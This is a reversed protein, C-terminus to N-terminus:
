FFRSSTADFDKANAYGGYASQQGQQQGYSAYQPYGGAGVGKNLGIAGQQQQQQSGPQVGQQQPPVGQQGQQQQQQQGGVGAGQQQQPAGYRQQTAQPQQAGGYGGYAYQAQLASFNPPVQQPFQSFGYYGAYPNYAAAAYPNMGYFNAAAAQQAPLQQQQQQQPAQATQSAGQAGQSTSDEPRTPLPSPAQYGSGPAALQGYADYFGMSRMSEQGYLSSYDTAQSAFPQGPAQQQPVSNFAAYPSQSAAAAPAQTGPAPSHSAPHQFYPSSVQAAPNSEVPKFAGYATQDDQGFAGPAQQQQPQGYASSMTPYRSFASSAQGPFLNSQTPASHSFATQVAQEQKPQQPIQQAQQQQQQPAETQVVQQQQYPAQQQQAYSPQEPVQPAATEPKAVDQSGFSPKSGDLLDLSGFQVGLRDIGAAGPFVVAEQQARKPPLGPPGAGLFKDQAPQQAVQTQQPLPQQAPAAQSSVELPGATTIDNPPLHADVERTFAPDQEVAPKSALVSDAWGEGVAVPATQAAAAPTSGWPDYSPTSPAATPAPAATKAASPTPLSTTPAASSTEELVPASVPEPAAEPAVTPAPASPAPPAPATVPAPPPPAPKPPSPPRAIQAWSMKSGPAITRPAAKPAPESPAAAAAPAPTAESNVQPAEEQQAPAPAKQAAAAQANAADTWNSPTSSSTDATAADAVPKGWVDTPTPAPVFSTPTVSNVDNAGNVQTQAASAVAAAGRPVGHVGVAGGRGGRGGRAGGRGGRAGEFGGRGRAAFGGRSPLSASPVAPVTAAKEVKKDKKTKVAGWQQALGESMRVIAVEVDGNAENIAFLVDEDTWDPFLEKATALKDSYKARLQRVEDSEERCLWARPPHSKGQDRTSHASVVASVGGRGRRPRGTGRAPTSM